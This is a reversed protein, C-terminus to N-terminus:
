GQPATDLQENRWKEVRRQIRELQGERVGKYLRGIDLQIPRDGIFGYNNTVGKDRDVYGKDMRAQIFAYYRDIASEMEAIKGERYLRSLRDFILEAKEQIVFETADADIQHEIGKQDIVTIPQHLYDTKALHIWVLGTEKRLDLYANKYGNFIWNLNRIRRRVVHPCLYDVWSPEFRRMKFFKVVYKEDESEFAIAQQGEGLFTLKQSLITRIRNEEHSAPAPLMWEPQPSLKSDITSTLSTSKLCFYFILGLFISSLGILKTRRAM